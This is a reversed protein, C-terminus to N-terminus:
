FVFNCLFIIEKKLCGIQAHSSHAFRMTVTSSTMCSHLLHQDNNDFPHVVHVARFHLEMNELFFCYLSGELNVIHLPIKVQMAM